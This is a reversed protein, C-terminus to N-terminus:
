FIKQMNKLIRKVDEEYLIQRECDCEINKLMQQLKSPGAGAGAILIQTKSTVGSDIDAGMGKIIKALERRDPWQNYTGTIVVKKNYFHNQKNLVNEPEHKLLDGDISDHGWFSAKANGKGPIIEKCICNHYKLFIRACAEADSLPDHHTLDIGCEACCEHLPKRNYLKMTDHQCFSLDDDAIGVEEMCSKLVSIDFAANHCVVNNGDIMRRILPYIEKFTPANVTHESNMGHVAVNHMDYENDPPQILSYFKQVIVGKVVSVLGVACATHRAPRATEFDLAVFTDMSLRNLNGAM